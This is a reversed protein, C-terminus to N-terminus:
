ARRLVAERYRLLIPLFDFYQTRAQLEFEMRELPDRDLVRVGDRLVRHLLDLPAANMVVVDVSRGLRAALQEQMEFVRDFDAIVEPKGNRLLVAVDADSSERGEGRAISGFLYAAVVDERGAFYTTLDDVIAARNM